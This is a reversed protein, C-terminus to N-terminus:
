IARKEGFVARQHHVGVLGPAEATEGILEDVDEVDPRVEYVPRHEVIARACDSVILAWAHISSTLRELHMLAQAVLARDLHRAFKHEHVACRDPKATNEQVELSFQVEM